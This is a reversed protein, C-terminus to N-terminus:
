FRLKREWYDAEKQSKIRDQVDSKTLEPHVTGKSTFHWAGCDDCPYVNIPGSNERYNNRGRLDILADLAMQESDYPRKGTSCKM